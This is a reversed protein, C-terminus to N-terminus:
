AYVLLFFRVNAIYKTVVGNKHSLKKESAVCAFTQLLNQSLEMKPLFNKKESAVCAFTQLLNQSLEM